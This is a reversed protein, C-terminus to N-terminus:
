PKPTELIGNILLQVNEYVQENKITKIIGWLSLWLIIFTNRTKSKMYQM